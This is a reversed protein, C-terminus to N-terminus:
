GTNTHTLFYTAFLSIFLSSLTIIGLSEAYDSSVNGIFLESTLTIMLLPIVLWKSKPTGRYRTYLLISVPMLMVFYCKWALPSFIPIFSLVILWQIALSHEQKRNKYFLYAVWIGISGIISLTIIKTQSVTLSAINFYWGDFRSTESFLGCSLSWLSQNFHICQLGEAVQKTYWQSYLNNAEYGFYAIVLIHTILLGLVTFIVTKYQKKFILFPLLIIPYVKTAIVLSLLVGALLNKNKLTFILALICIALISMNVQLNSVEEIFIRFNLLFPVLFISHTLSVTNHTVSKLTFVLDKKFFYSLIWKFVYWYTFVIGILWVLRIGHFSISNLGYLPISVLSM